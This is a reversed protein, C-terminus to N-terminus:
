LLLVLPMVGLLHSLFAFGGNDLSMVSFIPSAHTVSSPSNFFITGSASFMSKRFLHISTFLYFLFFSAANMFFDLLMVTSISEINSTCILLICSYLLCNNFMM